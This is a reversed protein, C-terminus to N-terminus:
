AVNKSRNAQLQAPQTQLLISQRIAGSRELSIRSQVCNNQFLSISQEIICEAIEMDYKEVVAAEKYCQRPWSRFISKFLHGKTLIVLLNTITTYVFFTQVPSM